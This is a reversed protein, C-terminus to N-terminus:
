FWERRGEIYIRRFAEPSLALYRGGEVLAIASMVLGAIGFSLLSGPLSVLLMIWGARRYGLLFKHVGLGGVLLALSGALLKRRVLESEPLGTM